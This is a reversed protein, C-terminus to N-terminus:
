PLTTAQAPAQGEPAPVAELRPVDLNLPVDSAFWLDASFTMMADTTVDFFFMTNCAASAGGGGYFIGDYSPSQVVVMGTENEDEVIRETSSLFNCASVPYTQGVFYGIPQGTMPALIYIYWPHNVMDQRETFKVLAGRIPFNTLDTPAPHAAEARDLTTERSEVAEKRNQDVGTGSQPDCAAFVVLILPVLLILTLRKNMLRRM